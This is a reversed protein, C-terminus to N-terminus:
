LSFDFDAGAVTGVYLEAHCTAGFYTEGSSQEQYLMPNKTIM